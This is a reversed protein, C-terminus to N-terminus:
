CRQVYGSMFAPVSEGAVVGRCLADLVTTWALVSLAGVAGVDSIFSFLFVAFALLARCTVELVATGELIMLRAPFDGVKRGNRSLKERKESVLAALDGGARALDLGFLLLDFGPGAVVDRHEIGAVIGVVADLVTTWVLMSCGKLVVQFYGVKRGNQSGCPMIRCMVLDPILVNSMLAVVHWNATRVSAGAKGNMSVANGISDGGCDDVKCRTKMFGRPRRAAMRLHWTISQGQWWMEFICEIGQGRWWMEINVNGPGVASQIAEAIM